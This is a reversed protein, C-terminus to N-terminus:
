KLVVHRIKECSVIAREAEEQYAFEGPYRFNAAFRTLFAADPKLTEWEPRIPKALTILDRIDHTKPFPIEYEELFAKLLKEACKQAHFCVVDFTAEELNESSVRFERRMVRFDQDAKRLWENTLQKM